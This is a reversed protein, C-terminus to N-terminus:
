GGRWSWHQARVGRGSRQGSRRRQPISEEKGGQERGRGKVIYQMSYAGSTIIYVSRSELALLLADVSSDGDVFAIIDNIGATNRQLAARISYTVSEHLSYSPKHQSTNSIASSSEKLRITMDDVRIIGKTRPDFESHTSHVPSFSLIFVFTPPCTCTKCTKDGISFSYLVTCHLTHLSYPCIAPISPVFM